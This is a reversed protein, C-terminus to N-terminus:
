KWYEPCEIKVEDIEYSSFSTEVLVGRYMFEYLYNRRGVEKIKRIAINSKIFEHKDM